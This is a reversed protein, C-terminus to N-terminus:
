AADPDADPRRGLHDLAMALVADPYEWGEGCELIPSGTHNAGRYRDWRLPPYAPAMAQGRTDLVAGPATLGRYTILLLPTGCLVALHALGADTAVVLRASRIAEISADLFRPWDWSRAMHQVARPDSSDPAGAAFMRVGAAELGDALQRWHPWNKAAGYRRKRPCLVLDTAIGERVFPEPRFYRKPSDPGVPQGNWHRRGARGDDGAREVLVHRAAGPYLAEEGPEIECQYEGQLAFVAPAHYLLKIGFEGPFVPVTRM